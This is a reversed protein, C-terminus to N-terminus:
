SNHEPKLSPLELISEDEMDDDSEEFDDDSM